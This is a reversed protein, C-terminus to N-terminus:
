LIKIPYEERYRGICKCIQVFVDYLAPRTSHLKFMNERGNYLEFKIEAVGYTEIKKMSRIQNFKVKSQLKGQWIYYAGYYTIVLGEKMSSFDTTDRVMVIDPLSFDNNCISIANKVQKASMQARFRVCNLSGVASIVTDAFDDRYDNEYMYDGIPDMKVDDSTVKVNRVEENDGDQKAGCKICFMAEDVLKTGCQGCFKAM